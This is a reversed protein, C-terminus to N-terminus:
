RVRDACGRALHGVDISMKVRIINKTAVPKMWAFCPFVRTMRVRMSM